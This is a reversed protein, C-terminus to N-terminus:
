EFPPMPPDGPDGQGHGGSHGHEPADLAERLFNNMSKSTSADMDESLNWGREELGDVFRRWHPSHTQTLFLEYALIDRRVRLGWEEFRNFFTMVQDPDRVFAEVQDRDM